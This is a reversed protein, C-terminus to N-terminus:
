KFRVILCFGSWIVSSKAASPVVESSLDPPQSHTGVGGTVNVDQEIGLVFQYFDAAGFIAVLGPLLYDCSCM